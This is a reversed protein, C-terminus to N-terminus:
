FTTFAAPSVKRAASTWILGRPEPAALQRSFVKASFRVPQLLNGTTRNQCERGGVM